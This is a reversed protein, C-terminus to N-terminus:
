TRHLPETSFCPSPPFSPPCSPPLPLSRTPVHSAARTQRQRQRQRQRKDRKSAGRARGSLDLLSSSPPYQETQSLHLVSAFSNAFSLPPLFLLM